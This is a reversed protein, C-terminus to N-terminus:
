GPLEFDLNRYNPIRRLAVDHYGRPSLAFCVMEWGDIICLEHVAAPVGYPECETQSWWTYDNFVLLGDAKVKTRAANIDRAVGEYSHDADVYIWDFYADPFSSLTAASDGDHLEVEGNQVAGEFAARDFQSFDNDILHMKRPVCIERISQAFTGVHTGIEAVVGNKPLAHLMRRRNPFFRCHEVHIDNLQLGINYFPGNVTGYQRAAALYERRRAELNVTAYYKRMALDASEGNLPPDKWLLPHAAWAEMEHRVFNEHEARMIEIREQYKM